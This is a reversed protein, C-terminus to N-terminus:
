IQQTKNDEHTYDVVVNSLLWLELVVIAIALPMMALGGFDHFAEEWRASNIKTFAISTVTLRITNCLLSVPISSLVIILKEWWYRKIVMAVLSCIVVFATLMRLGNCAEAVAVMTGNLNIVNTSEATTTVVQDEGFILNYDM